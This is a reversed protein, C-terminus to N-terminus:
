LVKRVLISIGIIVLRRSDELLEQLRVEVVTRQDKDKTMATGQSQLKATSQSRVCCYKSLM